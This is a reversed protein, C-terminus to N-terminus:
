ARDLGALVVIATGALIPVLRLTVLHTGFIMTDLRAVMPTIPPYDVYGLQPHAASALYYLEDRHFGYQGAFAFTVAFKVAALLYVFLSLPRLLAAQRDVPSTSTRPQIAVSPWASRRVASIDSVSMGRLAIRM